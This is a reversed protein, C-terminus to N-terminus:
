KMGLGLQSLQLYMDNPHDDLKPQEPQIWRGDEGRVMGKNEDQRWNPPVMYDDKLFDCGKNVLSHDRGSSLGFRHGKGHYRCCNVLLNHALYYIRM